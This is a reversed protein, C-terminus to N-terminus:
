VRKKSGHQSPANLLQALRLARLRETKKARAAAEAAVISQAVTHTQAAKDQASAKAPKFFQEKTVAM